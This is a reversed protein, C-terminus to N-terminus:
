KIHKINRRRRWSGLEKHAKGELVARKLEKFERALTLPVL